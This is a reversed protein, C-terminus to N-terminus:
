WIGRLGSSVDSLNPCEKAAAIASPCKLSQVVVSTKICFASGNVNLHAGRNSGVTMLAIPCPKVHSPAAAIMFANSNTSLTHLPWSTFGTRSAAPPTSAPRASAPFPELAGIYSSFHTFWRLGFLVPNVLHALRAVWAHSPDVFAVLVCNSFICVSSVSSFVFSSSTRPLCSPVLALLCVTFPSPACTPLPRFSLSLLQPPILSSFTLLISQDMSPPQTTQLTRHLLADAHTAPPQHLQSKTQTM